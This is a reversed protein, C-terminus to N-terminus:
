RTIIVRLDARGGHLGLKLKAKRISNSTRIIPAINEFISSQSSPEGRTQREVYDSTSWDEVKPFWQMEQLTSIAKLCPFQRGLEGDAAPCVNEEMERSSVYPEAERSSLFHTEWYLPRIQRVGHLASCKKCDSHEKGKEAGKGLHKEISADM